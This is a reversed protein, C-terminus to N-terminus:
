THISFAAQGGLIGRIRSVRTVETKEEQRSTTSVVQANGREFSEHRDEALGVAVKGYRFM